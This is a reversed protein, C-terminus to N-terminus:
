GCRDARDLISGQGHGAGAAALVTRGAGSPGPDALGLMADLGPPVGEAQEAM